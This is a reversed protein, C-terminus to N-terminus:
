GVTVLAMTAEVAVADFATMRGGEPRRRVGSATIRGDERKRHVGPTTM